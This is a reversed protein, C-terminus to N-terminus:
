CGFDDEIRQFDVFRNSQSMMLSQHGLHIGCQSMQRHMIIIRDVQSSM